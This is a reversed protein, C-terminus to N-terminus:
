GRLARSFLVEVEAPPARVVEVRDLRVNMPGRWLPLVADLSAHHGESLTVHPVWAGPRYHPEAAAVPLAEFLRAHTRLLAPTVVPMLSLVPEAAPFVCFGALTIPMALWMPRMAVARAPAALQDPFIGLTLHAPYNLRRGSADLEADALADWMREVERASADDLRLTFAVAM